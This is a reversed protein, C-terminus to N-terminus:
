TGKAEIRGLYRDIVRAVCAKEGKRGKGKDIGEEEFKENKSSSGKVYTGSM